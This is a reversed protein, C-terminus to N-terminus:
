EKVLQEVMELEDSSLVSEIDLLIIIQEKVKGLGMIFNTDIGQGFSPTEEIDGSKIDLVESVSDVIIGISTNNVEVVIVCTEQTHIEEQMSFKLRLDIVPIVKGRLNIVGKMYDPTQPVTTIDMLGIIERVRLIEIGYEENSLAFTLFKGEIVNKKETVADM